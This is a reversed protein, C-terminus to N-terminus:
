FESHIIIKGSLFLQNSDIIKYFYIGNKENLKIEIKSNFIKSVLVLEGIANYIEITGDKLNNNFYKVNLTFIGNSPNPYVITSSNTDLTEIGTPNDIAFSSSCTIGNYTANFSYTGSTTPLIKSWGFTKVKNNSPSNYTWSLYTSGDPNLISLNGTLGVIEDRIFIYFKAYGPPLGPGSFPIHFLKSENLVESNPCGPFLIDTSHVSAKVISTERYSKQATWWSSANLSNCLGSFPDIRTAVTSGSWVEFHLHPGSSNGSSGVIGLYEGNIVSDGIAKSTLSGNKMHFYLILSGDIHQIVVYNAFSGNSSCNRDFEGDHKDLIIGPAAAVVEVMNSDMKYFNYPWISIDTGKHGDYTISGCNYDQISASATNQDVYASVHYYSCDQLNSAAKVPWSLSVIANGQTTFRTNDINLLKMNESFRNELIEYEQDTICPRNASFPQTFSEEARNQLRSYEEQAYISLTCLLILLLCKLQLITNNM